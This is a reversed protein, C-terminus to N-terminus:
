WLVDLSAVAVAVTNCERSIGGEEWGCSKGM